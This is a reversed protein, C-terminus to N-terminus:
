RMKVRLLNGDNTIFLTKEDTSLATNSAPGEVKIKGLVKGTSNFIWV